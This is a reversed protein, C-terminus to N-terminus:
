LGNWAGDARVTGGRGSTQRSSPAQSAEKAQGVQQTIPNTEKLYPLPTPPPPPPMNCVGVSVSDNQKGTQTRLIYFM